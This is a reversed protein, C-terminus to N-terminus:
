ENGYVKEPDFVKDGEITVDGNKNIKKHFCSKYGMHCAAGGLQEVQFLVTDNDCDAYVAKIKQVHGSSEGKHWLKNRSRSFFHAEGTELTRNWAEENIYALMLVDGTDYEQVIAPLLGNGKSFDLEIM